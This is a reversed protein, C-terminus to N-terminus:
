DELLWYKKGTKENFFSLLRAAKHKRMSRGLAGLDRRMQRVSVAFRKALQESTRQTKFLSFYLAFLREAQAYVGTSRGGKKNRRTKKVKM